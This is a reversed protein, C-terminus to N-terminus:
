MFRLLFDLLKNRIEQQSEFNHITSDRTDIYAFDGDKFRILIYPRDKRFDKILFYNEVSATNKHGEPIQIFHPYLIYNMEKDFIVNILDYLDWLDSEKVCESRYIEDNDIISLRRFVYSYNRNM